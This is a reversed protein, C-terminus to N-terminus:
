SNTVPRTCTTSQIVHAALPIVDESVAATTSYIHQLAAVAATTAATAAAAPPQYHM